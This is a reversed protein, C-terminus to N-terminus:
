PKKKPTPVIFDFLYFVDKEFVRILGDTAALSM